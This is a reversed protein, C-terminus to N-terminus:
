KSLGNEKDQPEPQCYRTREEINSLYENIKKYNPNIEPNDFIIINEKIPKMAYYTEGGVHFIQGQQKLQKLTTEVIKRIKVEDGADLEKSKKICYATIKTVTVPKFLSTLGTLYNFIMITYDHPTLHNRM